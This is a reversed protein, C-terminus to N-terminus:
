KVSVLFPVCNAIPQQRSFLSSVIVDRIDVMKIEFKIIFIFKSNCKYNIMVPNCLVNYAVRTCDLKYCEHFNARESVSVRQVNVRTMIELIYVLQM